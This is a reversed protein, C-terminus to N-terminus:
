KKLVRKNTKNRFLSILFEAKRYDYVKIKEEIQNYHIWFDEYMSTRLKKFNISMDLIEIIHNIVINPLEKKLLEDVIQLFENDCVLNLFIKKDHAGYNALVCNINNSYDDTLVRNLLHKRQQQPEIYKEKYVEIQYTNQLCLKDILDTNLNDVRKKDLKMEYIWGFKKYKEYIAVLELANYKERYLPEIPEKNKCFNRLHEDELPAFYERKFDKSDFLIYRIKTLLNLNLKKQFEEEKLCLELFEFFTNNLIFYKIDGFEYYNELTDEEDGGLSDKPNKYFRYFRFFQEEDIKELNQLFEKVKTM